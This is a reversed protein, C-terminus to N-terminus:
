GNFEVLAVTAALNFTRAKRRDEREMEVRLGNKIGKREAKKRGKRGAWRKIKVNKRFDRRNLREL